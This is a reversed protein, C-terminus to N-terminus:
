AHVYYTVKSEKILKIIEAPELNPSRQDKYRAVAAAYAADETNPHDDSTSITQELCYANILKIPSASIGGKNLSLGTDVLPTEVNNIGDWLMGVDGNDTKPTAESYESALAGFDKGQKIQDQIKGILVQAEAETRKPADAAPASGDAPAPDDTSAYKITIARCHVIKTPPVQDAVLAGREIQQKFDYRLQDMTLQRYKLGEDLTHPKIQEALNQVLQDIQADTVTIKRRKCEWDVLDNQVMADVAQPGDEAMCRAVVDKMPIDHGDIVAAAEPLPKGSEVIADADLVYSCKSQKILNVVFQPFLFQAQQERYAQFADDYAAAEEQPHDDSTSVAEILWYANSLRIPTTFQNGKVLSMADNVVTADVNPNGSYVMGIDGKSNKPSAESYQDALDGFDKGQGIQDQIAKVLAKADDESRTTGFVSGPEGPTIFRIVIARCHVTKIPQVQDQVLRIRELKEKFANRVYAMSSHHDEIEQELTRPALNKRLADVAKDIDADSVVIGQKACERDVVYDQVMQDVVNSRDERLCAAVVDNMAIVRGNVVAAVTGNPQLAPADATVDTAFIRHATIHASQAQVSSCAEFSSAFVIAAFTAPWVKSM